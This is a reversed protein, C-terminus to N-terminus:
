PFSPVTESEDRNWYAWVGHRNLAIWAVRLIQGEGGGEVSDMTRQVDM